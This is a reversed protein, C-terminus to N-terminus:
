ILNIFETIRICGNFGPIESSATTYGGGGYYGQVYAGSDPNWSKEGQGAIITSVGSVYM